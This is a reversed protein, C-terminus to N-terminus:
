RTAAKKKKHFSSLPLFLKCDLTPRLFPAFASIFSVLFGNSATRRLFACAALVAAHVFGMTGADQWVCLRGAGGRRPRACAAAKAICATKGGHPLVTHKGRRGAKPLNRNRGGSFGWKFRRFLATRPGRQNGLTPLHRAGSGRVRGPTHRRVSLSVALSCLSGIYAASRGSPCM